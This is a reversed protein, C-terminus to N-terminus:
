SAKLPFLFLPQSYNLVFKCSLWCRLIRCTKWKALSNQECIFKWKFYREGWDRTFCELSFQYDWFNKLRSRLPFKQWWAGRWQAHSLFYSKRKDDHSEVNWIIHFFNEFPSDQKANKVATKGGSQFHWSFFSFNEGVNRKQKIKNWRVNTRCPQPSINFCYYAMFCNCASFFLRVLTARFSPETTSCLIYKLYGLIHIDANNRPQKKQEKSIPNTKPHQKQHTSNQTQKTM